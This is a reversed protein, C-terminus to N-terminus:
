RGIRRNLVGPVTTAGTRRIEESSIVSLPSATDAIGGKRDVKQPILSGTIIEKAPQSTKQEKAKAAKTKPLANKSAMLQSQPATPPTEQGGALGRPQALFLGVATLSFGLGFCRTFYVSRGIFFTHPSKM